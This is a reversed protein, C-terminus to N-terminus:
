SKSIQNFWWMMIVITVVTGFMIQLNITVWKSMLNKVIEQIAEACLILMSVALGVMLAQKSQKKM